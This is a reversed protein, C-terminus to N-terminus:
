LIIYYHAIQETYV